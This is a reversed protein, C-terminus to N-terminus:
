WSRAPPCSGGSSSSSSSATAMATPSREAAAPEPAGPGIRRDAGHDDLIADDDTAAPGLRTAPRMGLDLRQPAGEAARCLVPALLGILGLVVFPCHLM